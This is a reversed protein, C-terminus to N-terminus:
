FYGLQFYKLTVCSNMRAQVRGETDTAPMMEQVEFLIGPFSIVVCHFLRDMKTRWQIQWQADTDTYLRALSAKARVFGGANEWMGPSNRQSPVPVWISIWGQSRPHASSSHTLASWAQNNLIIHAKQQCLHISTHILGARDMGLIMPVVTNLSM